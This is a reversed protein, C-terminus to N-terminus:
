QVNKEKGKSNLHLGRKTFDGRNTTANILKVHMFNITVKHLKKNYSEIQENINARAGIGYRVPVELVIVNTNQTGELFNRISTLNNNHVNKDIDNSGGILIIADNKTLKCLESKATDIVDSIKANPKVYGITSLHHNSQHKLEGAIGLAHSDGLTIIRPRGDRYNKKNKRVLTSQISNNVETGYTEKSPHSPRSTIVTEINYIVASNPKAAQPNRGAV